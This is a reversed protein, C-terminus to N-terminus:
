KKTVTVREIVPRAGVAISGNSDTPEAETCITDVIDMGSTVKGFAAYSGDLHSATDHMIFFQSSASNVENTRAMSIVGRSHKIPNAVGNSSFEGKISATEKHAGSEDFGGGQMMFGEIIRHFTLGEYFGENALKEFNAVTLPAENGYLELEIVGYGRIEISATHTATYTVPYLDVVTVSKITPRQSVPISGNSDIPEAETCIRDVIDMGSTVKGFAAYSGDLWDAVDHMIFFQSSASNMSNSRAMSIVGRTHRISNNIGNNSFEGTISYTRREEGSEDYGGGQMMFGDIIRHFTLGEYFGSEALSVFNQVTIPAEEGYLELEIIGYGDIEIKATHTAKHTPETDDGAEEDACSVLCPLALMLLALILTFIKLKMTLKNGEM